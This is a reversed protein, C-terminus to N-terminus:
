AIRKVCELYATEDPMSEGREAAWLVDALCEMMRHELDQPSSFRPLLSHYIAVIGPPRDTALQEHVAIHMSMHLFPNPEGREPPFDERLAHEEDELLSHYEPHERIIGAVVQELPEMPGREKQKKWVELFFRRASERDQVFM